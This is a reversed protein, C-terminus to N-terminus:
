IRGTNRKDATMIKCGRLGDLRSHDCNCGRWRVGTVRTVSADDVGMCARRRADAIAATAEEESPAKRLCSLWTDVDRASPGANIRCETVVDATGGRGAARAALRLVMAFTARVQDIFDMGAPSAAAGSAAVCLSRTEAELVEDGDVHIRERRTCGPWSGSNTTWPSADLIISRALAPTWVADRSSIRAPRSSKTIPPLPAILPISPAAPFPPLAEPPPLEVKALALPAPPPPLPPPANPLPESAEPRPAALPQDVSRDRSCSAMVMKVACDMREVSRSWAGGMMRSNRRGECMSSTTAIAALVWAAM